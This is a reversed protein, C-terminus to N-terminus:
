MRCHGYENFRRAQRTVEREGSQQWYIPSHWATAHLHQRKHLAADFRVGDIRRSSVYQLAMLIRAEGIIECVLRPSALIGRRRIPKFFGERLRM